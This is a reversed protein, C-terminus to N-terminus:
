AREPLRPLGSLERRMMELADRVSQEQVSVRGAPAFMRRRVAYTGRPGALALWVLGVPKEASGGAPGAIGTVAVGWHAGGRRRAGEAMAAAVEASVAGHAAILEAAVGLETTKAADAYSVWGYRFVASAGPVSALAACLRGGSCSEAVAVTEGRSRLRELVAGELTEADRGWLVESLRERLTAAARELLEPAARGPEDVALASVTVGRGHAIIGFRPNDSRELLDRIRAEVASEPWSATHFTGFALRRGPGARTELDERGGGAFAARCEHPPGPLCLLRTRQSLDVAFGWATGADNRLPRAGSPVRAQALFSPPPDCGHQRRYLEALPAVAGPIDVLAAGLLAAVEERVRDDATPGLGGSTVVAECSDRLGHLLRRVDAPADGVTVLRRVLYGLRLLEAALFPTNADRVRGQLLEEGVAVVVAELVARPEM